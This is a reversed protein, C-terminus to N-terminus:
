PVTQGYNEGELVAVRRVSREGTCMGFDLLVWYGPRDMTDRYRINLVRGPRDFPDSSVWQGIQLLVGNRDRPPPRRTRYPRSM